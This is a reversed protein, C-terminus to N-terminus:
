QEAIVDQPPTPPWDFIGEPFHHRGLWKSLLIVARVFAQHAVCDCNELLWKTTYRRSFLHSGNPCIRDILRALALAADTDKKEIAWAKGFLVWEFDRTCRVPTRKCGNGALCTYCSTWSLSKDNRWLTIMDVHRTVQQTGALAEVRKKLSTEAEPTLGQRYALLRHALAVPFRVQLWVAVKRARAEAEQRQLEERRLTASALLADQRAMASQKKAQELKTQAELDNLAAKRELERRETRAAQVSAQEERAIKRLRAAEPKSDNARKMNSQRLERLVMRLLTDNRTRGAVDAVMHLAALYSSDTCVGGDTAVSLEACSSAAASGSQSVPGSPVSDSSAVVNRSSAGGGSSAMASSSAASGSHGGSGSAGGTSSATASSSAASGSPVGGGSSGGGSSAPASSFAASGSPAGGGSSGVGGGPGGADHHDGDSDHDSDSNYGEVVEWSVAELGEEEPPHPVHHEIINDVDAWSTLIGAEWLEDVHKNAEARLAPGDIKDWIPRLDAFVDATDGNPPLTAGTQAYGKTRVNAHDISQWMEAVIDLVDQRQLSAIKSPDQQRMMNMFSTELQEMIRQVIAHLHTDNVQMLGTVGGGHYIVVHGMARLADQVEDSLHASFWDLLVVVSESSCTAPRLGWELADVVNESRYSGREQFQLHMWPRHELKPAMRSGDKAKFLVALPPVEGDASAWSPVFTLLTYRERTAAHNEKAGVKRAGKRAYM